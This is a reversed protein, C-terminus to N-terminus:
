YDRVEWFITNWGFIGTGRRFSTFEVVAEPYTDCLERMWDYSVADLYLRLLADAQLGYVTKLDPQRMEERCTWESGIKSYALVLGCQGLHPLARTVEGQLTRHEDVLSTDVSIVVDEEVIMKQDLLNEVYAKVQVESMERRFLPSGVVTRHRFGFQGKPGQTLFEQWSFAPLYNGLLGVRQMAYMQPKSTIKM